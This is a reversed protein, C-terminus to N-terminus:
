KCQTACKCLVFDSVFQLMIYM